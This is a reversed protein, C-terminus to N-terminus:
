PIFPDPGSTDWIQAYNNNTCRYIQMAVGPQLSAAPVDLCHSSTGSVRSRLINHNFGTDWKQNSSTNCTWQQVSTRNTASGNVDLCYQTAVNRWQFIVLNGNITVNIAEWRQLTSNKDCNEQTIVEGQAFSGNLPQLCLGSGGNQTWRGPLDAAGASPALALSVAAAAVAALLMGALRLRRVVIGKTVTRRALGPAVKEAAAM